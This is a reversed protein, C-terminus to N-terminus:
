KELHNKLGALLEGMGKQYTRKVMVMDLLSGLPGFKLDYIPSVTVETAAGNPQLTFRIDASKFPMNTGVIRFTIANPADHKVVEEDLYNKGGLDCHRTAGVAVAGASTQHSGVVGPNWLHIGGIDALAAWVKEQPANITIHEAFETM